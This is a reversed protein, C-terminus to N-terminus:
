LFHTRPFPSPVPGAEYEPGSLYSCAVVAREVAVFSGMVTAWVDEFNSAFCLDKLHEKDPMQDYQGAFYWLM